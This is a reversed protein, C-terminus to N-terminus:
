RCPLRFMQNSPFCDGRERYPFGPLAFRESRLFFFFAEYVVIPLIKGFKKKKVRSFFVGPPLPQLSRIGPLFWDPFPFFVFSEAFM